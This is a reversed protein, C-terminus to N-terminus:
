KQSNNWVNWVPTHSRLFLVHQRERLNTPEAMWQIQCRKESQLQGPSDVFLVLATVWDTREALTVVIFFFCSRFASEGREPIYINLYLCDEMQVQTFQSVQRLRDVRAAPVSESLRKLDLQKQPCVPRCEYCCTVKLHSEVFQYLQDLLVTFNIALKM